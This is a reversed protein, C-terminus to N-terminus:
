ITLGGNIRIVQGTTKRAGDSCLFLVLLAVDEPAPLGLGARTRASKLRSPSAEELREVVQTREVFSLSVCHMRVKEWAVEAALNKILGVEAARMAGILSQNPAAFRGADSVLKIFCGKRHRLWPLAAYALRELYVISHEALPLFGKPDCDRFAGVVRSQKPGTVVCDVVADIHGFHSAAENVLSEINHSQKIDGIVTKVWGREAVEIADAAVGGQAGASLSVVLQELKEASRGHVVVRWGSALAQQAVERGISGTAGTVLLVPNKCLTREASTM